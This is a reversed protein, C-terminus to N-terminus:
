LQSKGHDATVQQSRSHDATVQQSNSHSTTFKQSRSQIATVQQSRTHGATVQQSRSQGATVQQSKGSKSYFQQLCATFKSFSSTFRTHSQHSGPTFRSQVQHLGATFRTYVQQSRATIPQSWGDSQFIQLCARGGARRVIGRCREATIMEICVSTKKMLQLFEDDLDLDTSQLVQAMSRIDSVEM